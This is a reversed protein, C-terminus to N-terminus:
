NSYYRNIKIINKSISEFLSLIFKKNMWNEVNGMWLTRTSDM